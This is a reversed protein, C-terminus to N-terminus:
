SHKQLLPDAHEAIQGINGRVGGGGKREAGRDTDTENRESEGMYPLSGRKFSVRARISASQHQGFFVCVWVCVSVCMLHMNYPGRSSLSNIESFFHFHWPNRSKDGTKKKM